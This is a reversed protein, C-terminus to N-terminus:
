IDKWKIIKSRLTKLSKGRQKNTLVYKPETEFIIKNLVYFQDWCRINLVEM